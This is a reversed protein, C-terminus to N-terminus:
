FLALQVAKHLIKHENEVDQKCVYKSITNEDGIKSVSNVFYRATWLKGCWLKQKVEPNQRFVERATISKIVTVIKTPSYMQISQVFFHVHNDDTGIRM